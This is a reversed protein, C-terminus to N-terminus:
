SAPSCRSRPRSAPATRGSTASWRAARCPSPSATSPGCRGSSVACGARGARVDFVKEVGDLEIFDDRTLERGHQSRQHTRPASTREAGRAATLGCGARWALGALARVRGGGAAPHLGGVAAPGAPLPRGLVYLAPLWNVFALPLMFTVGRVMDKAFVTPPYQLLTQGGYTFANQVESADQAVFQFAAGAVFVAGFIGAGSVVMVPVLLVKLPTWHMDVAALAYGLM